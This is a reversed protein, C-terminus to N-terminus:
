RASSGRARGAPGSLRHRGPAASGAGLGLPRRSVDRRGRSLRPRRRRLLGRRHLPRWRDPRHRPHPRASRRHQPDFEADVTKGIEDGATNLVRKGLLDHSKDALQALAPDPTSLVEAGTITVADQGFAYVDSWRLLDGGASKKVTVAVVTRSQPDVVFGGVKGVTEATSTSVIKQGDAESFRM